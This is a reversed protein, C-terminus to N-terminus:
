KLRLIPIQCDRTFPFVGWKIGESETLMAAEEFAEDSNLWVSGSTSCYSCVLYVQEPAEPRKFKAM